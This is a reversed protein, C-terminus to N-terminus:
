CRYRRAQAPNLVVIPLDGPLDDLVRRALRHNGDILLYDSTDGDLAIAGKRKGVYAMVLVEELLPLPMARARDVDVSVLGFGIIDGDGQDNRALGLLQKAYQQAVAKPLTTRKPRLAGRALDGRLQTINFSQTAWHFVERPAPRASGMALVDKSPEYTAFKGGQQKHERLGDALAKGKASFHLTAGPQVADPGDTFVGEQAMDQLCCWDDHNAVVTGDKLRSGHEPAMVVGVHPHSPRRPRPAEAMVRYHRRNSRMRGDQGVQFGACETMIHDVYALTSWHDKGWANVPIYADMQTNENM